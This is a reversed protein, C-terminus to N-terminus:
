SGGERQRFREIVLPNLIYHPEAKGSHDKIIQIDIAKQAFLSEVIRDLEFSDFHAWHRQLAQTRTLRNGEVTLLDRLLVATGGASVSAGKGMSVRKAGPVFDQCAIIAEKIDENELRLDRKRSLSILMATKLIHDHLREMTGTTDEEQQETEQYAAYWKEYTERGDDSWTFEGKCRSIEV